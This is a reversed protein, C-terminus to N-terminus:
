RRYKSKLRQGEDKASHDRPASAVLAIAIAVLLCGIVLSLM